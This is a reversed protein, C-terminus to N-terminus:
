FKIDLLELAPDVNLKSDLEADLIGVLEENLKEDIIGVLEEKLEENVVDLIGALIKSLVLEDDLINTAGDFVEDLKLKKEVDILVLTELEDEKNSVDEVEDVRIGVVCLMDVKGTVLVDVLEMVLEDVLEVLESDFLLVENEDVDVAVGVVDAVNDM